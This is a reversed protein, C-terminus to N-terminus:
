NKRLLVKINKLKFDNIGLVGTITILFLFSFIAIFILLTLFIIKLFLNYLPILDYFIVIYYSLSIILYAIASSAIIKITNKFVNINIKWIDRFHLISYLLFVNGWSALSLSLAIGLHGYSKVLLLVLICNLLMSFFSIYFPISTIKKSFYITSFLKTLGFAPLGLAYMKLADSTAKVDGYGFKGRKFLIDVILDSLALLGTTCLFMIGMMLIFFSNLKAKIQARKMNAQENSLSTLLITSISIAFIGLPLQAIRDAYYLWSIAGSISSAFVLGVFQNIQIVGGALVNPLLLRLLNKINNDIKPTKFHIKIKRFALYFYIIVFQVLGSIVVSYSLLIETILLKKYAYCMAMIMFLNLIIPTFAWLSFYKHANLVAGILSSLSIFLLYPFMVRALFVTRELQNSDFGPALMSIITTMFIECLMVVVILILLLFFFFYSTFIEAKIQGKKNKIDLYLPVFANNIAGEAFLRRFFSPIRFALLFSDAAPTAGLTFAFIFDRIYGFIRSLFTLLSVIGLSKLNTLAM